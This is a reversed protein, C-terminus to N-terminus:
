RYYEAAQKVKKDLELISDNPEFYKPNEVIGKIRDKFRKHKFRDLNM